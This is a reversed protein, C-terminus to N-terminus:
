NSFVEEIKRRALDILAFIIVADVGIFYIDHINKFIDNDLLSNLNYDYESILKSGSFPENIEPIHFIPESFNINLIKNLIEIIIDFPTWLFGLRDSFWNKLDSFYTDFFGDEPVFLGKLGDLILEVLKKGFFNESFPNIYSLIDGIKEFINKNTKTNEEIAQKQDELSSSIKDQYDKKKDEDTYSTGVTFTKTDLINSDKLPKDSSYAGGLNSASSSLYFIIKDGASVTFPLNDKPISFYYVQGDEYSEYYKGNASLAIVSDTYYFSSISSVDVTKKCIHLYITKNIDYDGYDIWLNDFKWTSLDDSNNVIYPNTFSKAFESRAFLIDKKNTNYIDVTSNFYQVHKGSIGTAIIKGARITSAENNFVFDDDYFDVLHYIVCTIDANSKLYYYGYSSGYEEYFMADEPANFFVLINCNYLYSGYCFIYDSYNNNTMFKNIKSVVTSDLEGSFSEESGYAFSNNSLVPICFMFTCSLLFSLLLKKLCKM